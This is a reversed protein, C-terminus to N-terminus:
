KEEMSYELQKIKGNVLEEPFYVQGCSPCRLVKHSFKKDLYTFKAEILELSAKCKNCIFKRNEEM